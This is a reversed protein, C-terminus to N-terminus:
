LCSNEPGILEVYGAQCDKKEKSKKGGDRVFKRKCDQLKLMMRRMVISLTM